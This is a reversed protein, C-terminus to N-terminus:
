GSKLPELPRSSLDDCTTSLRSQPNQSIQTSTKNKLYSIRVYDTLSFLQRSPPRDRRHHLLTPPLNRRRAKAQNPNPLPRKLHYLLVLILHQHAFPLTQLAHQYSRLSTYKTTWINKSCQVMLNVISMLVRASVLKLLYDKVGKWWHTIELRLDDKEEEDTGSSSSTDSAEKKTMYTGPKVVQLRPGHMQYISEVKSLTMTFTFRGCGFHRLLNFRASTPDSSHECLPPDLIAM